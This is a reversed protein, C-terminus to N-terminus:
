LEVFHAEDATNLRNLAKNICDLTCSPRRLYNDTYRLVDFEAEDFLDFLSPQTLVLNTHGVVRDKWGSVFHVKPFVSRIKQEVQSNNPRLCVYCFDKGFRQEACRKVADFDVTIQYFVPDNVLSDLAIMPIFNEEALRHFEENSMDFCICATAAIKAPRKDLSYILQLDKAECLPDLQHMFCLLERETMENAAASSRIVITHPQETNLGVAYPNPSYNLFNIAQWVKKKTAETIHQDERGNVVYSVTAVSVGALRAVDRNTAKKPKTLDKQDNM